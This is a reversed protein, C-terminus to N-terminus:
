EIGLEIVKILAEIHSECRLINLIPRKKKKSIFFHIFMANFLKNIIYLIRSYGLLISWYQLSKKNCFENWAAEVFGRDNVKRSNDTLTRMVQVKKDDNILRVKNEIVQTPIIEYNFLKDNIEIKLISGINWSEDDTETAFLFNGQGYIIPCGNYEEHSGLCHSHQCVITNAGSEVMKRCRRQLEPSPYKYHELGSHYLIILFDCKQRVEEIYDFSYLVDLGNAGACNEQAIGFERDAFSLIGITVNDIKRILPRKARDSNRNAGLSYIGRSECVEITEKLGQEGYDMIHNNALSIVNFGASIIANIASKSAKLNPGSKLIKKSSDTLPCELNLIALDSDHILDCINGFLYESNGQEFYIHNSRTICLDGFITIKM